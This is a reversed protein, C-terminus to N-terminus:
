LESVPMKIPQNLHPSYQSCVSSRKRPGIGAVAQIGRAMVRNGM